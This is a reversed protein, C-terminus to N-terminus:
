IIKPSSEYFILNCRGEVLDIKVNEGSFMIFPPGTIHVHNDIIM